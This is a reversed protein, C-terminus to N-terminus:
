EKCLDNYHNETYAWAFQTSEGFDLYRVVIYKEGAVQIKKESYVPWRTKVKAPYLSYALTRKLVVLANRSKGESNVIKCDCYWDKDTDVAYDTKSRNGAAAAAAAAATATIHPGLGLIRNVTVVTRLQKRETFMVGDAVPIKHDAHHVVVKWDVSGQGFEVEFKTEGGLAAILSVRSPTQPQRFYKIWSEPRSVCWDQVTDAISDQADKLLRSRKRSFSEDFEVPCSAKSKVATTTSTAPLIVAAAAVLDVDPRTLSKVDTHSPTSSQVPILTESPVSMMMSPSDTISPYIGAANEPTSSPEPTHQPSMPGQVVPMDSMPSVSAVSASTKVPAVVDTAGTSSAAMYSTLLSAVSATNFPDVVATAATSSTAMYSTPLPPSIPPGSEPISALVSSRATTTAAATTASSPYVAFDLQKTLKVVKQELSSVMGKYYLKMKDSYQADALFRRKLEGYKRKL